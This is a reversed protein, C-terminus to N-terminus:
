ANMKLPKPEPETRPTEYFLVFMVRPSVAARHQKNFVSTSLAYLGYLAGSHRAFLPNQLITRRIVLTYLMYLALPKVKLLFCFHGTTRM